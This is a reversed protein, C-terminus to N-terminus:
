HQLYSSIYYEVEYNGGTLQEIGAYNQVNSARVSAVVRYTGKKMKLIGISKPAVNLRNSEAGSYLLTLTYDTNNYIRIKSVLGKSKSVKNMRPLNGHESAFVRSVELDIIKKDALYKHKGKPYHRLYYNYADITNLASATSWARNETSWRKDVAFKKEESDRYAENPVSLQYSQWAEFTNKRKAESYLSDVISKIKSKALNIYYDNKCRNAFSELYGIGSLSNKSSEESYKALTLLCSDKSMKYYNELVFAEKEPEIVGSYDYFYVSYKAITPQTLLAEYEEEARTRKDIDDGVSLLVFAIGGAIFAVVAGVLRTECGADIDGTLFIGFFSMFAVSALVWGIGTVGYFYWVIAIIILCIIISNLLCGHNDYWEKFSESLEGKRM